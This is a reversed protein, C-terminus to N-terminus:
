GDVDICLYKLETFEDLGHRSGERGLGSQKVGGFPAGEYSILGTNVGVVGFELAEGVRWARGLDRTFFYAALGFETDNAMRVADAEDEFPIVAALPGFTEERAVLMDNTVGTLLTPEFFTGGISHRAGGTVVTAGGDVAEDVHRQVKEVASESILPGQMSTEDFGNGVVLDDIASQLRTVFADHIGSQVFLRNACVCTQGSNRFKSAMAGAVATDLDADDFVILPANGGLELAIKKVTRSSKSMLLKGVATSGTFSLARVRPDSTLLDGIMEPDGLVVSLVGAPVGARSALEALATASLPTEEAPKVIIPCGAALAPGAKRLIMASPFNWPTIAAAVGIPQRITMLRRASNNTPIVEGYLRKSEEAFWEVFGAGYLIEGRAEALPKGQEATLIAALDDANEVILEYWRRLIRARDLATTGAWAASAIHAAEIAHRIDSAEAQTVDAIVAGTAPDTVGTRRDAEGPMWEGGIFLDTRLLAPDHLRSPDFRSRM